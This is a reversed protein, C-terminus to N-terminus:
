VHARGIEIKAVKAYDPETRCSGFSWNAGSAEGDVGGTEGYGRRVPAIVAFGKRLWYNGHGVLVPYKLSARAEREAARGHSFVVAPFPGAGEPKYLHAAMEVNGGFFGSGKMPLKLSQPQVLAQAAAPEKSQQAHLSPACPVLATALALLWSTIRTM